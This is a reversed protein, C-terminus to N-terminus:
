CLVWKVLNLVGQKVASRHHSLGREALVQERNRVYWDYSQIFMEENSFRPEWGLDTRATDIDFYMSRGYMLAHYAGLPSLGVVSTMKMAWVAPLMPVSRVKSGTGAHRCLAELVERM